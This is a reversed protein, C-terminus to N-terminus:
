ELKMVIHQGFISIWINDILSDSVSYLRHKIVKILSAVVRSWFCLNIDWFGSAHANKILVIYCKYWYDCCSWESKMLYILRKVLTWEQWIFISKGTLEDLKNCFPDQVFFIIIKEILEERSIHIASSFKCDTCAAHVTKWKGLSTTAAYHLHEKLTVWSYSSCPWPSMILHQM